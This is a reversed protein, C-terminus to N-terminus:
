EDKNIAWPFCVSLPKAESARGCVQPHVRGHLVACHAAGHAACQPANYSGRRIPSQSALLHMLNPAIMVFWQNKVTGIAYQWVLCGGDSADVNQVTGDEWVVLLVPSVRVYFYQPREADTVHHWHVTSSWM